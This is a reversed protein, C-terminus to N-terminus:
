TFKRREGSGRNGDSREVTLVAQDLGLETAIENLLEDIDSTVGGYIRNNLIFFAETRDSADPASRAGQIEKDLVVMQDEYLSILRDYMRNSILRRSRSIENRTLRFVDWINKDYDNEADVYKQNRDAADQAGYYAVKMSLYRWNWLQQSIDDLFQAQAEIIKAQRALEAEREKQELTRKHDVRKLVYPILLSSLVATLALLAVSQAFDADWM